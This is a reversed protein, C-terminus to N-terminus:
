PFEPSATPSSTITATGTEGPAPEVTEEDTQPEPDVGPDPSPASTTPTPLLTQYEPLSGDLLPVMLVEEEGGSSFTVPVLEGPVADVPDAVPTGVLAADPPLVRYLPSDEVQDGGIPVNSNPPAVVQVELGNRATVDVTLAEDDHENVVVAYLRAPGEESQGILLANRVLARGVEGEVGDSPAYLIETSADNVVPSIACGGTTAAAAVVALAVLPRAARSRTLRPM